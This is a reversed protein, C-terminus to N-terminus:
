YNFFSEEKIIDQIQAFKNIAAQNDSKDFYNAWKGGYEIAHEIKTKEATTLKRNLKKEVAVYVTEFWKKTNEEQQREEADTFEEYVEETVISAKKVKDLSNRLVFFVKNFISTSSPLSKALSLAQKRINDKDPWRLISNATAQISGRRSELDEKNVQTGLGKIILETLNNVMEQKIEPKKMQWAAGKVKDIINENVM